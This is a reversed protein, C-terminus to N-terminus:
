IFVTDLLTCQAHGVPYAGYVSRQTEICGIL